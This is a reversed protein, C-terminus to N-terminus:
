ARSRAESRKRVEMIMGEIYHIVHGLYNPVFEECEYDWQWKPDEKRLHTRRREYYKHIMDLIVDQIETNIQLEFLSKIQVSNYTITPIEFPFLVDLHVAYYGEEESKYEHQHSLNLSDALRELKELLFLVGDLYRVKVRTRLIDSFKQYCNLPSTWTYPTSFSFLRENWRPNDVVDIRYCKEIMSDFPKMVIEVKQLSGYLAYGTKGIYEENYVPLRANLHRIFESKEVEDKMQIVTSTYYRRLQALGFNLIKAELFERYEDLSPITVNKGQTIHEWASILKAKVAISLFKQPETM